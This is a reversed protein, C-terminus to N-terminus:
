TCDAELDAESIADSRAEFGIRKAELHADLDADFGAALRGGM